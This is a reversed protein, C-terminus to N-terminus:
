RNHKQRAALWSHCQPGPARDSNYGGCPISERLIFASIAPSPPPTHRFRCIGVVYTASALQSELQWYDVVIAILAFQVIIALFPALGGIWGGRSRERAIPAKAVAVTIEGYQESTPSQTIM